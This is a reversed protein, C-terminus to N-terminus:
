NLLNVHATNILKMLTTMPKIPISSHRHKCLIAKWNALVHNRSFDYQIGVCNLLTLGKFIVYGRM